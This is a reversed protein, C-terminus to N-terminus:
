ICLSVLLEAIRHRNGDELRDGPNHLRMNLCQDRRWPLAFRGSTHSVNMIGRGAAPIHSGDSALICLWLQQDALSQMCGAQAVAQMRFMQGSFGIEDKGAVLCDDKHM